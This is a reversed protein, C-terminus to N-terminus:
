DYLNGELEEPSYVKPLIVDINDVDDIIESVRNAYDKFIVILEIASGFTDKVKRVNERSKFYANIFREKPM